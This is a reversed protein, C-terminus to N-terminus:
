MLLMSDGYSYFRYKKKIAERYAKLLFDKKAFAAVLMMLTSKPQHLNTILMDAMKFDYPPYIFKDTWAKKSTIQFGSVTVTELARVTSTGVPIIRKRKEKAENIVRKREEKSKKIKQVSSKAALNLRHAKGIVANRTVGGIIQAIESATNGKGWLKKLKEEKELNWSM